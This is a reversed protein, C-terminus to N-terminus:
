QGPAADNGKAKAVPPRPTQDYWGYKAGTWYLFGAKGDLVQRIVDGRLYPLPHADAAAKVLQHTETITQTRMETGTANKLLYTQKADANRWGEAKFGHIIALLTDGAVVQTRAPAPPAEDARSVPVPALVRRPDEVIWNAFESNIESLQARNPKVVIAIDQSADGNFDGTLAPADKRTDALMATQYVRALVAEV